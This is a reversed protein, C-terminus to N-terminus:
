CSLSVCIKEFEYEISMLLVSEPYNFEAKKYTDFLRSGYNEECFVQYRAYNAKKVKYSSLFGKKHV